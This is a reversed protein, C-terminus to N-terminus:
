SLYNFTRKNKNSIPRTPNKKLRKKGHETMRDLGRKGEAQPRFSDSEFQRVRKLGLGYRPFKHRLLLYIEDPMHQVSNLEKLVRPHPVLGHEDFRELAEQILNADKKRMAVELFVKMCKYIPKEFDAEYKRYIELVKDLDRTTLFLRMLEGYTNQDYKVRHKEFEPLIKAEMERPKLANVYLRLMTNLVYVNVECKQDKLM